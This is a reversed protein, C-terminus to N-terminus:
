GDERAFLERYIRMIESAWGDLSRNERVWRHAGDAEAQREGESRALVDATLRALAARSWRGSACRQPRGRRSGTAPLTPRSWPSAAASRRSCPSRPARAPAAPSSRTRRRTCRGRITPSISRVCSARSASSPPPLGRRRGAAWASASSRTASADPAGRADRQVAPRGQGDLEVRFPAARPRTPCASGNGRRRAPAPDVLLFRATDIGNRVVRIQDAPAGRRRIADATAESVCVITAGRSLVRLKYAARLVRLPDSRLFSHVHWVAATSPVERAAAAAAVDFGSFHSHLIVPQDLERVRGEIWTTLQGRDDIAAFAPEIGEQALGELWPRGRAIPDFVCDFGWGADRVARAAALLMPIFSGPYPGGYHALHVVTPSM